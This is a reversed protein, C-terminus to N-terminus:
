NKFINNETLRRIKDALVHHHNCVWVVELPKSYDKHHSEVRGNCNWGYEKLNCEGKIIRGKKIKYGLKQYINYRDKNNLYFKKFSKKHSLKGKETSRWVKIIKLVKDKNKSYWIERKQKTREKNRILYQRYKEPNKKHDEKAWNLFYEKRKTYVCKKCVRRGKDFEEVTKVKLCTKCLM